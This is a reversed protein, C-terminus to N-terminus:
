IGRAKDNTAEFLLLPPINPIILSLKVKNFATKLPAHV